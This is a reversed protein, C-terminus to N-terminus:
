PLGRFSQPVRTPNVIRAQAWADTPANPVPTGTLWWVRQDPRLARELAKFKDTTADRFMGGEDVIVLNIDKRKRLAEAVFGIKVGDHNVLYFDSITKLGKMRTERTGHVVAATRHMLVDFIDQLWVRELTSLPSIVAVKDVTGEGMMFDAAWLAAATKGTGMESLNFCRPNKIHFKVMEIQHSMPKYKGPWRYGRLEPVPVDYGLNRLLQAAEPTHKCAVNYDPHELTKSQAILERIIFPDVARFVLSGTPEHFHITM